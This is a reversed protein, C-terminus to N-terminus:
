GVVVMPWDSSGDTTTVSVTSIGDVETSGEALTAPMGGGEAETGEVEVKFGTGIGM